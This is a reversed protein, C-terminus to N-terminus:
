GFVPEAVLDYVRAECIRARVFSGPLAACRRVYVQGDIEPADRFSRGIVTTGDLPSSGEVLIDMERGVWKRNCELSIAMQRNM